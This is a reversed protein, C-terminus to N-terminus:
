GARTYRFCRLHAPRGAYLTTKERPRISRYCLSCKERGGLKRLFGQVAQVRDM